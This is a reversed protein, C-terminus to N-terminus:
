EAATLPIRIAIGVLVNPGNNFLNYPASIKFKRYREEDPTDKKYSLRDTDKISSADGALVNQMIGREMDVPHVVTIPGFQRKKMNWRSGEVNCKDMWPNLAYHAAYHPQYPMGIKNAVMCFDTIGTGTRPGFKTSYNPEIDSSTCVGFNYIDDTYASDEVPKVAGLYAWATLYNQYPYNDASPDGRLVLNMSDKTQNLWYQVPLWTGINGDLDKYWALRAPESCSDDVLDKITVQQQTGNVNQIVTKDGIDTGITIELHNRDDMKGLIAALQQLESTSLELSQRYTALTSQEGGTLTLGRYQKVLITMIYTGSLKKDRKLETFKLLEASTLEHQAKYMQYQNQEDLTMSAGTLYKRALLLEDDSINRVTLIFSLEDQEDTTLSAPDAKILRTEGSIFLGIDLSGLYREILAEEDATLPKSNNYKDLLTQQADTPNIAATREFKIYFDRDCYLNNTRMLAYTDIKSLDTPYILDWKYIGAKSTIETALTKVLDKVSSSGEAYYFSDAM